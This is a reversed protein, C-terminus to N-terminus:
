SYSAEADYGMADTLRRYEASSETWQYLEYQPDYDWAYRRQRGSARLELEDKQKQIATADHSTNAFLVRDGDPHIWACTTKGSGPSVRRIDGNDLDMKFIQYFPNAPDRESQFVMQRGDRSFYGEGSRLGGFTVQRVNQILTTSKTEDSSTDANDTGADSTAAPSNSKALSPSQQATAGGGVVFLQVSFLM